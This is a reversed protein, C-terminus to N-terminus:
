STKVQPELPTGGICFLPRNGEGHIVTRATVRHAERHTQVQASAVQALPLPSPHRRLNRVQTMPLFLCIRWNASSGLGFRGMHEIHRFSGHLSGGNDAVM